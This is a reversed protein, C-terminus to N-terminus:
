IDKYSMSLNKGQKKACLLAFDAKNFLKNKTDKQEFDAVGSSATIGYRSLVRDKIIKGRLRESIDWATRLKAYPLLIVFEDGGFRSAIDSKRISGMVYSSVRKITIDGAHHGLTDNIKKLHDIDLIIISLKQGRKAKEIEIDFVADFFRSNYLGTKPDKIAMKYLAMLNSNISKLIISIKKHCQPGITKKVATIDNKLKKYIRHEM